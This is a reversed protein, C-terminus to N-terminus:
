ARGGIFFSKVARYVRVFGRSLAKKGPMYSIVRLIRVYSRPMWSDDRAAVAQRMVDNLQGFVDKGLSCNAQNTERWLAFYLHRCLNTFYERGYRDMVDACAPDMRRQANLFNVYATIAALHARPDQRGSVSGGYLRYAYCEEIATAKWSGQMLMLWLADDAYLLDKFSPIGGVADYAKARVVYGTGFSDRIRALRAALFEAATERQPIPRCHRILGGREDILRFHAHYLGADPFRRILQAMVHLFDPDLLDDHGIITMFQRKSVACVRRWNEEISLDRDSPLIRIRPDGLHRTWEIENETGHNDLILLEFDGHKQALISEVCLRFHRGGDRVPVIISFERPEM